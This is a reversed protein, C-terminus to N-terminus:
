LLYATCITKEQDGLHMGFYDKYTKKKFPTINSKHNLLTLKDCIYCFKDPNNICTRRIM